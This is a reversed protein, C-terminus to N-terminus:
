KKGKAKDMAANYALALKLQVVAKQCADIAKAKHGGFTHPAKQLYDIADEINVIAAKLRPHDGAAQGAAPSSTFIMGFVLTSVIITVFPILVKKM